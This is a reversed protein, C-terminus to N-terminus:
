TVCVDEILMNVEEKTFGQLLLEGDRALLLERILPARWEEGVPANFYQTNRKITDACVEELLTLTKGAVTRQDEQCLRALFRVAFKNCNILSRYFTM